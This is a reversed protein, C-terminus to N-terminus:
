LPLTLSISTRLYTKAAIRNGTTADVDFDRAGDFHNWGKIKIVDGGYNVSSPISDLLYGNKDTLAGSEVETSLSSESESGDTKNKGKCGVFFTALVLFLCIISVYRKM